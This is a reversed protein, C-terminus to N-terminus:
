DNSKVTEGIKEIRMFENDYSHLTVLIKQRNPLTGRLTIDNPVRSWRTNYYEASDSITGEIYLSWRGGHGYAMVTYGDVHRIHIRRKRIYLTIGLLIFFIFSSLITATLWGYSITQYTHTRIEGLLESTLTHTEKVFITLFLSTIFFIGTLITLIQFTMAENNTKAELEKAWREDRNDSISETINQESNFSPEISISDEKNNTNLKYGCNHCVEDTSNCIADCKPCRILSM